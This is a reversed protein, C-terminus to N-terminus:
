GPVTTSHCWECKPSGPQSLKLKDKVRNIVDITSVGYRVVVGGVAEETGKVLASVRFADGIKVEAM